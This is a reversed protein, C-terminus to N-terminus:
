ELYVNAVVGPGFSVGYNHVIVFLAAEQPDIVDTRSTFEPSEADVFMVVANIQDVIAGLKVNANTQIQM